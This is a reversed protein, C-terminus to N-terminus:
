VGYEEKLMELLKDMEANLSEFAAVTSPAYGHVIKNREVRLDHYRDKIEDTGFDSRVIVAAM